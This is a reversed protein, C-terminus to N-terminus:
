AGEKDAIWFEISSCIIVSWSALSYSHLLLEPHYNVSEPGKMITDHICLGFLVASYLICAFLLLFVLFQLQKSEITVGSIFIDAAATACLILTLVSLAPVTMLTEGVGRRLLSFVALTVLLPILGYWITYFWRAIRNTRKSDILKLSGRQAIQRM